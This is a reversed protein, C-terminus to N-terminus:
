PSVPTEFSFLQVDGCEGVVEPIETDPPDNQPGPGVEVECGGNLSDIQGPMESPVVLQHSRVVIHFDPSVPEYAVEGATPGIEAIDGVAITGSFTAMGDDDAVNGDLFLVGGNFAGLDGPGCNTAPPDTIPDICNPGDNFFIAWVTYAYGPDLGETSITILAGDEYVTVQGSTAALEDGVDPGAVWWGHGGPIPSLEEAQAAVPVAMLATLGLAISLSLGIFKRM